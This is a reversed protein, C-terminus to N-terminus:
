TPATFLPAAAQEARRRAARPSDLFFLIIQFFAKVFKKEKFSVYASEVCWGVFSYFYFLFVWQIWSYGYM